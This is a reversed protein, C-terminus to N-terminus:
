AAIMALDERSCPNLHGHGSACLDAYQMGAVACRDLSSGKIVHHVFGALFAEEWGRLDTFESVAPAVSIQEGVISTVVIGERPDTIICYSVGFREPFTATLLGAEMTPLGLVGCLMPVESQRLHVVSAVGLGEELSALSPVRGGSFMDYVKFSPPSVALFKRLTDASTPYQQLLSSFYLVEWDEARELLEPQPLLFSCAPFERDMHAAVSSSLAKAHRQILSVGVGMEELRRLAEEGDADGGIVTAIEVPRDLAALRAAFTAASGGLSRSDRDVEWSLDGIALIAKTSKMVSMITTATGHHEYLGLQM